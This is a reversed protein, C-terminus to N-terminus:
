LESAAMFGDQFLIGDAALKYLKVDKRDHGALKRWEAQTINPFHLVLGRTRNRVGGCYLYAYLLASGTYPDSRIYTMGVSYFVVEAYRSGVDTKGVRKEFGAASLIEVSGPPEDYQEPRRVASQTFQQREKEQEHEFNSKMIADGLQRWTAASYLEFFLTMYQRMREDKAPERIVEYGHDVPWNVVTVATEEVDALKDLAKFLRLNMYRPGQTEGGHKYAAYPGFYVVPIGLQAAAVLRAFRQGVNHGTPVEVTREVVLIPM